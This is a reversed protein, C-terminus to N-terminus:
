PSGLMHCALWAEVALISVSTDAETRITVIAYDGSQLAPTQLIPNGRHTSSESKTIQRGGTIFVDSSNYLDVNVQFNESVTGGSIRINATLLAVKGVDGAGFTIRESNTVNDHRNGTDYDETDWTVDAGSSADVGTQDASKRLRVGDFSSGGGGGGSIAIDAQNSGADSVTVGAGTFNLIKADTVVNAGDDEVNPRGLVAINELTTKRSNSSQVVHTEETGDPTTAATLSSVTKDAM